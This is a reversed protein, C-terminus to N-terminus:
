VRVSGVLLQNSDTTHWIIEAHNIDVRDFDRNRLVNYWTKGFDDTRDIYNVRNYSYVVMIQDNNQPNLAIAYRSPLSDKTNNHTQFSLKHQQSEWSNGGDTTTVLTAGSAVVKNIDQNHM